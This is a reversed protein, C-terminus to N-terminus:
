KRLFLVGFAGVGCNASIASSADNIVIKKWPVRRQMEQKVAELFEYSCGVSILFVIDPVINKPRRLAWHLYGRAFVRRSGFAIGALVMKSNKLKLIPHMSLSRCLLNVGKGIKDSRYLCETSQVIFSSSIRNGLEKIEQLIISASVGRQAMDAAALVSIGMGGSLHGSDVVYVNELDAAAELAVNYANSVHRAMCIHIIASPETKKLQEFYSKYEEISAVDSYAEKKDEEMYETLNESTMENTDQYRGEETVVYYYMVSIGYQRQLEPTLDSVCDTSVLVRDQM